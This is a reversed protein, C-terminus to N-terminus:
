PEVTEVVLGCNVLFNIINDPQFDADFLQIPFVARILGSNGIVKACDSCPTRTSYLTGEQMALWDCRMIANIEAHITCDLPYSHGIGLLQSTGHTCWNDCPLKLNLGSPPGNYGISALRNDKTVIATGVQSRVCLSRRAFSRAAGLWTADWTDRM